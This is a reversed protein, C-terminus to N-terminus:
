GTPRPYNVVHRLGARLDRVAGQWGRMELAAATARETDGTLRAQNMSERWAITHEEATRILRRLLDRDRHCTEAIVAPDVRGQADHGLALVTVLEAPLSGHGDAAQPASRGDDVLAGTPERVAGDDKAGPRAVGSEQPRSAPPDIRRRGSIRLALDEDINDVERGVMEVIQLLHRPLLPTALVAASALIQSGYLGYRVFISRRNSIEVERQAAPLDRISHAAIAFVQVVPKSDNVRVFVMTSGFLMPIDGDPDYRPRHKLAAHLITDVAEKLQKPNEPRVPVDFDVEPVPESDQPPAEQAPSPITLPGADLFVPHAVGLVERLTQVTVAALLDAHSRPSLISYSQSGEPRPDSQWGLSRLEADVSPLLDLISSPLDARLGDELVSVTIGPMPKVGGDSSTSGGETGALGDRKAAAVDAGSQAQDSRESGALPALTLPGELQRLHDALRAQFNVWGLEMVRDLDFDDSM